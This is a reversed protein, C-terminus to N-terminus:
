NNYWMERQFDIHKKDMALVAGVCSGPDGPNPPIYVNEWQDAIKQIATSNLACGGVVILNRSSQTKLLWKSCSTVILEFVFQTANALRALDEESTLEPKYWNCGKHLNVKFSVGPLEGNLEGEIFTAVMDNILELNVHTAISSGLSDVKYEDRNAKFGLRQTMASYFLGVSHPYRQSYVKKLRCGIGAWMTLTEFEGISDLCLVNADDFKSTYYGYAAHSTHHKAYKIPCTIGWQKLYKPINNESFGSWGQGAWVQRISKLYPIEYWIVEDPARWDGAQKAANVLEPNLHPDNDVKSFDKALAAWVLKKDKFVAISADHSNGVIGWTIM